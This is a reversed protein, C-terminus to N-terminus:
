SGITRHQHRKNDTQDLFSEQLRQLLSKIANLKETDRILRDLRSTAWREIETEPIGLARATGVTTETVRRSFSSNEEFQVQVGNAIADMNDLFTRRTKKAEEGVKKEISSQCDKDELLLNGKGQARDVRMNAIRSASAEKTSM